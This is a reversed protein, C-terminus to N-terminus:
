LLPFMQCFCYNVLTLFHLWLLRLPQLRLRRLLQLLKMMQVGVYSFISYHMSWKNYIPYFRETMEHGRFPWDQSNGIVNWKVISTRIGFIERYGFRNLWVLKQSFCPWHSQHYAVYCLEHQMFYAVNAFWPKHKM